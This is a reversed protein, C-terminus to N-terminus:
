KNPHDTDPKDIFKQAKGMFQILLSQAAYGIFFMAFGLYKGAFALEKVEQSLVGAAGVVMISLIISFKELALYQAYNFNGNAKRNLTNMKLLNHCLVGVLGIAILTLTTYNM